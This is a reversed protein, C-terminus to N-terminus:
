QKEPRFAMERIILGDASFAKFLFGFYTELQAYAEDSLDGHSCLQDHAYTLAEIYPEVPMNLLGYFERVNYIVSWKELPDTSGVILCYNILRLYNSIDEYFRKVKEPTNFGPDSNKLSPNKQLCTACAEQAVKDVMNALKKAAEFGIKVQEFGKQITEIDRNNLFRTGFEAKDIVASIVSKM